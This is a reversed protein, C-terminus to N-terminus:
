SQQGGPEGHLFGCIEARWQRLEDLAPHLTEPSDLDGVVIEPWYGYILPRKAPKFGERVLREEFERVEPRMAAADREAQLQNLMRQENRFRRAVEILVEPGLERAHRALYLLMRPLEDQISQQGKHFRVLGRRWVPLVDQIISLDGECAVVNWAGLRVTPRRDDLYPAADRSALSGILRTLSSLCACTFDTNKMLEPRSLLGRIPDVAGTWGTSGLAGVLLACFYPDHSKDLVELLVKGGDDGREVAERVSAAQVLPNRSTLRDELSVSAMQRAFEREAKESYARYRDIRESV